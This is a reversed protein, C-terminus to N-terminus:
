FVANASTKLVSQLLCIEVSRHSTTKRCVLWKRGACADHWSEVLGVCAGGLEEIVTTPAAKPGTTRQTVAAARNDFAAASKRLVQDGIEGRSYGQPIPLWRAHFQFEVRGVHGVVDILDCLLTFLNRNLIGRRSSDPAAQFKM